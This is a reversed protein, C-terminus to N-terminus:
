NRQWQNWRDLHYHFLNIWINQRLNFLLNVLVTRQGATKLSNLLAEGLSKAHLCIEEDTGVYGGYLINKSVSM